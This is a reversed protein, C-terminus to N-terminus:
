VARSPLRWFLLSRLDWFAIRDPVCGIPRCGGGWPKWWLWEIFNGVAQVLHGILYAAIVLAGLGGISVERVFSPLEWDPFLIMLGALVTVGPLLIGTFEYFSFQRM